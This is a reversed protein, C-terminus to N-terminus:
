AGGQSKAQSIQIRLAGLREPGAYLEFAYAGPAPMPIPPVEAVIEGGRLPANSSVPPLTTEMLVREDRLNVFRLSLEVTGHLEALSLYVFTTRGFDTPFGPAWLHNFTGAIIVKGTAADRYVQDALLIAQLVPASNM